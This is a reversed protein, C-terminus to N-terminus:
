MHFFIKQYFLDTKIIFDIMSTSTFFFHRSRNGRYSWNPAGSVFFDFLRKFYIFLVLGRVLILDWFGGGRFIASTQIFSHFFDGKKTYFPLPPPPPQPKIRTRLSSKPTIFFYGFFQTSLEKLKKKKAVTFLVTFLLYRSKLKQKLNWLM